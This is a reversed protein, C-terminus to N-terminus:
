GFLDDRDEQNPPVDNVSDKLGIGKWRRTREGPPQTFGREKLAIGFAKKSVANEGSADCWSSYALYLDKATTIVKRDIVCREDFFDGLTDEDSRYQATAEKVTSPDDLGRTQWDQLGRVMWALIGAAEARLKEKLDLDREAEPIQVTFPLLRIRRWIAFDTGQVTPLHNTAMWLKGEPIFEAAEKYLKRATITDGGTFAKIVPEALKRNQGSECATILRAGRLRAIDNRIGHNKSALFTEFDAQQAYDGLVYRLAELITTKGNSGSGTCVLLVQEKGSGTLSYGAWRALYPILDERGDFIRNLVATWLPAEAQTEYAVPSIKTIYDLAFPKQLEGTKLNLTGNQVNFLMPDTDLAEARVQVRKDLRAISVIRRIMAETESKQEWAVIARMEKDDKELLAEFLMKRISNKALREVELSDDPAWRRGDWTFWSGLKHCYLILSECANVFREANGHETLPPKAPEEKVTTEVAAPRPWIIESATVENTTPQM